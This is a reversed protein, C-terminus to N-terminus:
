DPKYGRPYTELLIRATTYEPELSITSSKSELKIERRAFIEMRLIENKLLLYSVLEQLDRLRNQLRGPIEESDYQFEDDCVTSAPIALGSCPQPVNIDSFDM